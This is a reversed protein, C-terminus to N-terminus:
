TFENNGHDYAAHAAEWRLRDETSAGDPLPRAEKPIKALHAFVSPIRRPPVGDRLTHRLIAQPEHDPGNRIYREVTAAIDVGETRRIMAILAVCSDPLPGTIRENM